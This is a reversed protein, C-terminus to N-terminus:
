GIFGAAIRDAYNLIPAPTAGLNSMLAVSLGHDPYLAIQARCGQMNGAHHFRRGLMEHSDLRWGLGLPAPM